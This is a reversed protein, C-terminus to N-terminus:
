TVNTTWDTHCKALVKTRISDQVLEFITGTPQFVYGGPPPINKVRITANITWDEYCKTLVNTKNIDQIPKFITRTKQFVYGGHTPSNIRTLVEEHFKTLVNKSEIGPGAVNTTHHNTMCDM